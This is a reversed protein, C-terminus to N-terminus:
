KEINRAEERPEDGENRESRQYVVPAAVVGRVEESKQLLM